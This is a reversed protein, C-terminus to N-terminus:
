AKRAIEEFVSGAWVSKRQPQPAPSASRESYGAPRSNLMKELMKQTAAQSEAMQVMFAKMADMEESKKPKVMEEIPMEVPMEAPLEPGMEEAELADLRALLPAMAEMIKQDIMEGIVQLDEPLLEKRTYMQGGEAEVAMNQESMNDNGKQIATPALLSKILTGVDALLASKFNQFFGIVPDELAKLGNAKLEAHQEPTVSSKRLLFKRGNAPWDVLSVEDVKYDTLEGPIPAAKEIASM